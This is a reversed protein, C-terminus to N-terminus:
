KTGEAKKSNTLELAAKLGQALKVPDDNAWFHMYFLRPTDQLGHNHLATVDIGHQRLTLAVPNVEKDVLVFDGTIAAKGDATPQFNMVTTVGMAPLLPWGMATIAEARPATVQFVGGGIERGSRGLVQEIQKTDLGPGAAVPSAAGAGGLPTGSASLAQRLAKALQLADGHGEYHMYMVHPSMENLHNHVATVDLGRSLLGSMVAPVEQDLLVLDGMVMTQDGVQKFAAYSGLAFGAKVPIGQVTVALDTRPMGIRFVDGPQIQGSKGLAQEVAKWDPDSAFAMAPTSVIVVLGLVVIAPNLRGFRMTLIERKVERVGLPATWKREPSTRCSRMLTSRRPPAGYMDLALIAAGGLGHTHDALWQSVLRGGRPSYTLLVWGSGGGM